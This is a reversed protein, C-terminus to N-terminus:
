QQPQPTPKGAELDPEPLPAPKPAHKKSNAQNKYYLTGFVVGASLWQNMSLTHQYLMCSLIISVLQRTTMVTAFFLAGFEKITYLLAVQGAVACASLMLSNMFFDPYRMCFSLSYFLNGQLILTIMSITASGVNVWLMQSYTSMKYGKFLQEQSTSTFGDIFLYGVMMGIGMLSNERDDAGIDGFLLFATCGGTVLTAIVYDQMVYKKGSFITGIIMVPFMKACKGLTQTPFNVYRLAEYQLYTAATNSISVGFFKIVPAAPALSDGKYMLCAIATAIAVARNNFVLFASALFKEGEQGYAQTMIREQVVGYMLLSVMLASASLIMGVLRNQAPPAAFKKEQEDETAHDQQTM